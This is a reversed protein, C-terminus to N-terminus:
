SFVVQNLSVTGSIKGTRSPRRDHPGGWRLGREDSLYIINKKPPGCTSTEVEVRLNYLIVCHDQLAGPDSHSNGSEFGPGRGDSIISSVTNANGNQIFRKFM